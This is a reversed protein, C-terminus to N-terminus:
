YSPPYLKNLGYKTLCLAAFLSIIHHRMGIPLYARSYNKNFSDKPMHTLLSYAGFRSVRRVGEPIWRYKIKPIDEIVEQAHEMTMKEFTKQDIDGVESDEM